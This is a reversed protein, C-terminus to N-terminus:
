ITLIIRRCSSCALLELQHKIKSNKGPWYCRWVPEYQSSRKDSLWVSASLAWSMSWPPCREPVASSTSALRSSPLLLASKSSQWRKKNRITLSKRGINTKSSVPWTLHFRAKALSWPRSNYRSRHGIKPSATLLITFTVPQRKSTVFWKESPKCSIKFSLM